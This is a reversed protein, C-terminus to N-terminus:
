KGNFVKTIFACRQWSIMREDVKKQTQKVYRHGAIILGILGVYILYTGVSKYGFFTNDGVNNVEFVLGLALMIVAFILQGNRKDMDIM